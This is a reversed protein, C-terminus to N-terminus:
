RSIGSAKSNQCPYGSRRCSRVSKTSWSPSHLVETNIGYILLAQAGAFPIKEFHLVIKLVFGIEGCRHTHLDQSIQKPRFPTYYIQRISRLQATPHAIPESPLTERLPRSPHLSALCFGPTGTPVGGKRAALVKALRSGPTGTPVGGKRAALVKALRFGPTGASLLICIIFLANRLLRQKCYIGGRSQASRRPDVLYRRLCFPRIRM